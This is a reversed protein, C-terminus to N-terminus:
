KVEPQFMMSPESTIMDMMSRNIDRIESDLGRINPIRLTLHHETYMM